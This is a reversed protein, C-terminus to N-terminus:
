VNNVIFDVFYNIRYFGARLGRTLMLWITFMPIFSYTVALGCFASTRALASFCPTLTFSLLTNKFTLTLRLTFLALKIEGFHRWSNLTLSTRNLRTTFGTRISDGGEGGERGKRPM